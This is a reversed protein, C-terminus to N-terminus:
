FDGGEHESRDPRHQRDTRTKTGSRTKQDIYYPVHPVKVQIAGLDRISGWSAFEERLHDKVVFALTENLYPESFLMESAREPTVAIGAMAVGLRGNALLEPLIGPDELEVLKVKVGLDAGSSSLWRSM